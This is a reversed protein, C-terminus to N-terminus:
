LTSSLLKIASLCDEANNRPIINKNVAEIFEKLEEKLSEEHTIQPIIIDGMRINMKAEGFDRELPIHGSKHIRLEEKVFDAEITGKTTIIKLSREKIPSLWDVDISTYIGDYLYTLSAIDEHENGLPYGCVIHINKVIGPYKRKYSNDHGYICELMHSIIYSVLDCDHVAFDWLVGCDNRPLHLGSRVAKIALIEGPKEGSEVFERLYKIIADTLPHFRFIHGVVFVTNNKKALEVLELAQEYNMTMPKEVLVPIKRELINKCIEHHTHASTAVIAAEIPTGDYLIDKYDSSKAGLLKNSDVTWIDHGLEELVRVHNKGFAGIGIIAIRM